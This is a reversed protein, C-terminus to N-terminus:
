FIEKLRKVSALGDSLRKLKKIDVEIQKEISCQIAILDDWHNFNYNYDKIPWAETVINEHKIKQEDSTQNKM